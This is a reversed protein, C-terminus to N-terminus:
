NPADHRYIKVLVRSWRWDFLYFPEVNQLKLSKLNKLKNTTWSLVRNYAKRRMKKLSRISKPLQDDSIETPTNCMTKASPSHDTQSNAALESPLQENFLGDVSSEDQFELQIEANEQDNIPDYREEASAEKTSSQGYLSRLRLDPSLYVATVYAQPSPFPLAINLFDGMFVEM